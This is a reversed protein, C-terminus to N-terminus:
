AQFLLSHQVFCQYLLLLHPCIGTSPTTVPIPLLLQRRGRILAAKSYDSCTGASFYITTM